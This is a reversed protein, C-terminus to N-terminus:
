PTLTTSTSAACGGGGCSGQDIWAVIVRQQCGNVFTQAQASQHSNSALVLTAVAMSVLTM